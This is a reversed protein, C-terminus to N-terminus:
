KRGKAAYIMWNLSSREFLAETAGRVGAGMAGGALGGGLVANEFQRKDFGQETGLTTALDETGEQIAETGAEKGAAFGVRGIATKAADDLGFMGKAGIRELATAGIAIPAAIMIDQDQVETGNNQARESAIEMTRSLLYQPAIGLAAAADVLSGSGSDAIFKAGEQAAAMYDGAEFQRRADEFKSSPIYRNAYDGLERRIGATTLDSAQENMSGDSNIGGSMANLAFSKALDFGQWASEDGTLLESAKSGAYDYAEALHGLLGAGRQAFGEATSGITTSQKLPLENIIEPLTQGARIKAISQMLATSTAPDIDQRDQIERYIKALEPLVEGQEELEALQIIKDSVDPPISTMLAESADPLPTIQAAQYGGQERGVQRADIPMAALPIEKLDPIKELSSPQDIVPIDPSYEVGELM